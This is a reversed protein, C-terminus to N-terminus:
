GVQLCTTPLHWLHMSRKIHHKWPANDCPAITAYENMPNSSTNQKVVYKHKHIWVSEKEELTGQMLLMTADYWM